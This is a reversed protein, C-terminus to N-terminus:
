NEGGFPRHKQQGQSGLVTQGILLGILLHNCLPKQALRAREWPSSMSFVTIYGQRLPGVRYVMMCALCQRCTHAQCCFSTPHTSYVRAWGVWSHQWQCAALSVGAVPISVGLQLGTGTCVLYLLARSVQSVTQGTTSGRALALMEALSM